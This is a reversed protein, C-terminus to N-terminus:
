KLYYDPNYRLPILPVVRSDVFDVFWSALAITVALPATVLVGALFYARLKAFFGLRKRVVPEPAAVPEEEVSPQTKKKSM